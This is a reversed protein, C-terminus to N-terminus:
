SYYCASQDDVIFYYREWFWAWDSNRFAIFAQTFTVNIKKKRQYPYPLFMSFFLLLLTELFLFMQCISMRSYNSSITGAEELFWQNNDFSNEQKQPKM